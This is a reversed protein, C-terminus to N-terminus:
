LAAPGDPLLSVEFRSRHQSQGGHPRRRHAALCFASDSDGLLKVRAVGLGGRRFREWEENGFDFMGNLMGSLTSVNGGDFDINESTIPPVAGTVATLDALLAPEFEVNDVSAHKYAIEGEFRFWGFDYGGIVDIDFGTNYDINAGRHFDETGVIGGFAVTTDPHHRAADNRRSRARHLRATTLPRRHLPDGLQRAVAALLYKRM